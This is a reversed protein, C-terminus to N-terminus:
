GVASGNGDDNGQEQEFFHERLERTMDDVTHMFIGLLRQTTRAREENCGDMYGTSYAAQRKVAANTQDRRLAEIVFRNHLCSPCLPPTGPKAACTQCEMFEDCEGSM